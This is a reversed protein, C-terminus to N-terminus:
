RNSKGAGRRSAVTFCTHRQLVKVAVTLRLTLSIYDVQM